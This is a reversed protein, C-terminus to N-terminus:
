SCPRSCCAWATSARRSASSGCSLRWPPWSSSAWSSSSPRWGRARAAARLAAARPAVSLLLYPAAMGLGLATFVALSVLARSARARLRAGLGHLARHLADGRRHRARRELVIRRPGRSRRALNAAASSRRRGGRVRRLPEPRAAPVAGSLVVLFPPSQLQFGWGIESAARACSSCCRGGPGLLLAGRGATFALGHRWAADGHGGAHRVFSLVKLSLVPLVCPMLNLILGGLFAFGLALRLSGAHAAGAM